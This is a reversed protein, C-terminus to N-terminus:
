WRLDFMNMIEFFFVWLILYCAFFLLCFVLFFVIEQEKSDEMNENHDAKKIGGESARIRITNIRFSARGSHLILIELKKTFSPYWSIHELLIRHFSVRLRQQLMMSNVRKRLKKTIHCQTGHLLYRLQSVLRSLSIVWGQLM